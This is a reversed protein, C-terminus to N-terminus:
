DKKQNVCKKTEKRCIKCVPKLVYFNKGLLESLREAEAMASKLNSHRHTPKQCARNYVYFYADKDEVWEITHGTPTQYM